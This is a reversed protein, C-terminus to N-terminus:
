PSYGNSQIKSKQNKIKSKTWAGIVWTNRFPNQFDFILFGFRFYRHDERGSKLDVFFNPGCLAPPRCFFPPAQLGAACDFFPILSSPHPIFCSMRDTRSDQKM